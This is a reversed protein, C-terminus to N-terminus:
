FQEGVFGGQDPYILGGFQYDQPQDNSMMMLDMNISPHMPPAIQPLQSYHQGQIQYQQSPSIGLPQTMSLGPTPSQHQVQQQLTQYKRQINVQPLPTGFVPLQSQQPIQISEFNTASATGATTATNPVSNVPAVVPSSDSLAFQLSNTAEAGHYLVSQSLMNNDNSNSALQQYNNKQDNFLNTGENTGYKKFKDPLVLKSTTTVADKLEDVKAFEWLLVAKIKLKSVVNSQQHHQHRPPYSNSRNNPEYITQKITIGKLADSSSDPKSMLENFFFKWFKLLFPTDENFKFADDNLKLVENGYSYIGTFISLPQNQIFRNYNHSSSNVQDVINVFFSSKLGEDISYTYPLKDPLQLKVMSHIIPINSNQLDNLGPFRNSLIADEKLKLTKIEENGQLTLIIPNSNLSDQVSIFFNDININLQSFKLKKNTPAPYSVKRKLGPNPGSSSDNFGLSKNLNIKSFIEEFRKNNQEQEEKTHFIPGDNILKIIDIKQKLNKIVQIHSSVQKRSRFKGTKTLIYDSILENRGCSRGSIKIKNLGNKPIISLVEEFAAEVDESWIDTDQDNFNNYHNNNNNYDMPGNFNLQQPLQDNPDMPFMTLTKRSFMDPQEPSLDEQDSDSTKKQNLTSPSITGLIKRIPTKEEDQIEFNMMNSNSMIDNGSMLNYNTSVEHFSTNPVNKFNTSKPMQKRVLKSSEHVQYLQKGTNDIAIDVIMPLKKNSKHSKVPTHAPTQNGTTPNMM